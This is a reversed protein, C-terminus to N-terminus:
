RSWRSDLGIPDRYYPSAAWLSVRGSGDASKQAGAMGACRTRRVYGSATVTVSTRLAPNTGVTQVARTSPSASQIKLLSRRRARDLKSM